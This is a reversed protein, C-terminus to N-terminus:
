GEGVLSVFEVGGPELTVDVVSVTVGSVLLALRYRGEQLSPFAFHGSEDVEVFDPVPKQPNDLSTITVGARGVLDPPVEGAIASGSHGGGAPHAGSVSVSCRDGRILLVADAEVEAVLHLDGECERDEVLVGYRGPGIAEAAVITEGASIEFLLGGLADGVPAVRVELDRVATPPAGAIYFFAALPAGVLPTATPHPSASPLQTASVASPSPSPAQSFCGAVLLGVVLLSLHRLGGPNGLHM